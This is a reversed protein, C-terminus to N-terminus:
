STVLPFRDEGAAALQAPLQEEWALYERAADDDGQHRDQIWFLHDICDADVPIGPSSEVPRGAARWGERGGRLVAVKERSMTGLHRFDRLDRLDQAALRARMEHESYLVATSGAPISASIQEIRPRIAWLAGPLHGERYTMALDVDVLTARGADLMASVSECDLAPTENPGLELPPEPTPGSEIAAEPGADLVQVDWGMQILWHATTVARIASGEDALVIRAGWVACWRDTAQVLQGGPAHTAGPVHGAEFEERTRVDFLYLTRDSEARWRELTELDIGPVRFRDRLGRALEAGRELGIASVPPIDAASGHDLELGALHWAMTGGRLAVVPNAIGANRLTQAGIISRTRGACNVVVTTEPQPAIEHIRYVLEANPVSVGQPLSMREFEEATRGDVVVVDDGRELMANLEGPEISPTHFAHEVVEGFAKSPVNVGKYGELGADAWAPNGGDVVCVQDYGLAALRAAARESVGDGGDLLVIRTHSRPVLPRIRFELVSYPVCVARLPHSLGFQGDERVDIFALERQDLLSQAVAKPSTRNM